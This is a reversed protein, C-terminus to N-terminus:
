VAAESRSGGWGQPGSSRLAQRVKAKQPGIDGGRPISARARWPLGIPRGDSGRRGRRVSEIAQSFGYSACRDRANGRVTGLYRTIENISNHIAKRGSGCPEDRGREISRRVIKVSGGAVPGEATSPPTRLWAFSRVRDSKQKNWGRRTRVDGKSTFQALRARSGACRSTSSTTDPPDDNTPNAVLISSPSM